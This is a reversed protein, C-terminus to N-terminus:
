GKNGFLYENLRKLSDYLANKDYLKGGYFVGIDAIKRIKANLM